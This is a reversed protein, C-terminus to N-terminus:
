DQVGVGHNGAAQDAYGKTKGLERAEGDVIDPLLEFLSKQKPEWGFLKKARIARGRSNM